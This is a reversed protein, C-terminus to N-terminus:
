SPSGQIDLRTLGADGGCRLAEDYEERLEGDADDTDITHIWAM